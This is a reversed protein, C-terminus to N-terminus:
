LLKLRKLRALHTEYAAEAEAQEAEANNSFLVERYLAAFDENEQALEKLRIAESKTAQGLLEKKLLGIFTDTSM